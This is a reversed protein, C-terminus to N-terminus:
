KNGGISKLAKIDHYLYSSIEEEYCIGKVYFKLGERKIEVKDLLQKYQHNNGELNEIQKRLNPFDINHYKNILNKQQYNDIKLDQIEQRMQQFKTKLENLVKKRKLRDEVSYKIVYRTNSNDQYTWDKVIDFLEELDDESIKPTTLAQKLEDIYIKGMLTDKVYNELQKWKGEVEENPVTPHLSYTEEIYEDIEETTIEEISEDLGDIGLDDIMNYKWSSILLKTLQKHTIKYEKM